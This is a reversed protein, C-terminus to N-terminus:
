RAAVALSGRIDDPSGCMHVADRAATTTESTRCGAGRRRGDTRAARAFGTSRTSARCRGPRAHDTSGGPGAPLLRALLSPLAHLAGRPRRRQRDAPRDRSSSAASRALPRERWSRCRSGRWTCRSRKASCTRTPASTARCTTSSTRSSVISRSCCISSGRDRGTPREARCLVAAGLALLDVRFALELMSAWNIGMLPPNAAALEGARSSGRYYRADGTLAYARGLALWHQHRNLEWIIKHDGIAPRPLARGWFRAPRPAWAGSRHALGPQHGARPRSLRSPRLSGRADSPAHSGDRRTRRFRRSRPRSAFRARQLPVRLAPASTGPSRVHRGFTATRSRRGSGRGDERQDSAARPPGRALGRWRRSAAPAPPRRGELKM